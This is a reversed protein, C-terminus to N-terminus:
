YSWKRFNRKTIITKNIGSKSFSSSNPVLSIVKVCPIENKNDWKCSYNSDNAKVINLFILNLLIYAILKPM